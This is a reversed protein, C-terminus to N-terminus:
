TILVWVEQVESFPSRPLFPKCSQSKAESTGQVWLPVRPIM